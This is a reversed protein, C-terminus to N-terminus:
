WEYFLNEPSQVSESAGGTLSRNQCIKQKGGEDKLATLWADKIEIVKQIEPRAVLPM